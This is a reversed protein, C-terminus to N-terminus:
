ATTAKRWWIATTSSFRRSQELAKRSEEAIRKQEENHYWIASRYQAGVDSFQRDKVTPDINRWFVDLLSSYSIAAPDYTVEIAEAHGTTGSSVEEYTPNKKHGGTYGSIVSKVGELKDFPPEMCWFCGGAFTAKELRPKSAAGSEDTLLVSVAMMILGLSIIGTLISVKM